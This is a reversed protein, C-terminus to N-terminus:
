ANRDRLWLRAVEDEPIETERYQYYQNFELGCGGCIYRLVYEGPNGGCYELNYEEADSGCLPCHQEDKSTLIM